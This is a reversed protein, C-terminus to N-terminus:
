NFTLLVADLKSPHSDKADRQWLAFHNPSTKYEIVSSVAYNVGSSTTFSLKDVDSDTVGDLFHIM